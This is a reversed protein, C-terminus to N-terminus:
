QSVDSAEKRMSEGSKVIVERTSFQRPQFSVPQDPRTLRVGENADYRGDDELVFRVGASQLRADDPQYRPPLESAPFTLLAEDLPKEVLGNGIWIPLGPVFAKRGLCLPWYPNHLADHLQALLSRSESEFGVLFSADALYYRTSPIANNREVVGKARYFGDIGAIQYDYRMEGERDVRVGMRLAALDDIPEARDRGLAACLLGIVGSKSPETLTDRVEFRSQVGWSQM